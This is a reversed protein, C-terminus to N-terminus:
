GIAQASNTPQLSKDPAVERGVYSLAVYDSGNFVFGAVEHMGMKGHARLSAPNDRRIFLIGERGPLLRQLEAFMAQAVGKGREEASVCIPGYVYADPAGPYAALLARIIPVDANMERTSTMLFGAIRGGCRAVILPMARMMDAIRSRPLSASLTGGREPQNATQLEMIGDLDIETARSIDV